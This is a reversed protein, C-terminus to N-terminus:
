RKELLLWEQEQEGRERLLNYLDKKSKMARLFLYGEGTSNRFVITEMTHTDSFREKLRATVGSAAFEHLEILFTQVQLLNPARKPDLIYDEFGEADCIVLTNKRIRTNLDDHTCDKLLILENTVHNKDYLEKTLKLADEEIDYGILTAHRNYMGLGVLYYGEACGIDIIAAYDRTKLKEITAHLVEEYVGILKVLFSSGVAHEVYRMHAFPGGQIEYGYTEIFQKTYPAVAVQDKMLRAGTKRWTYLVANFVSKPFLAKIALKARVRFPLYTM